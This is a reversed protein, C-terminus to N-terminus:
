TDQTVSIFPATPRSRLFSQLGKIKARSPPHKFVRGGGGRETKAFLSFVVPCLKDGAKDGHKQFGKHFNRDQTM